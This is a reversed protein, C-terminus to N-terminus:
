RRTERIVIDDIYVFTRPCRFTTRWSLVVRREDPEIQVTDLRPVHEAAVGKIRATISLAVTPLAFRLEGLDSANQVLVQEGGRLPAACILDPHAGQFYREDFDDPLFPFRAAKWAEDYTGAYSARPSWGRGTFGFGAPEPRDEPSEILAAPDELNPLVLGEIPKGNPGTSFGAGVPNRREVGHNAPNAGETDTGGFAREYILPVRDFPLPDSMSYSGLSRFWARDGFVRVVKRVPGAALAVDVSEVGRHPAYAHGTLVVDTGRKAPCTDSERKVSSFAPDGFHEDGYSIPAQEAAISLRAGGLAFTGKVVVTATDFGEKDLGPVIASTFPTHNKIALMPAAITGDPAPASFTTRGFTPTTAERGM